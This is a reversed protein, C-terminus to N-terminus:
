KKRKIHVGHDHRTIVVPSQFLNLVIEEDAKRLVVRGPEIRHVQYDDLMEGERLIQRNISAVGGKETWLVGSLIYVRAATPAESGPKGDPKKSLTMEKLIKAPYAFPNRVGPSPSKDVTEEPAAWSKGLGPFFLCVAIILFKITTSSNRM